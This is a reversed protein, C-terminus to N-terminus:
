ATAAPVTVIVAADFCSLVFTAFHVTVTGTTSFPIDSFLVLRVNFYPVVAVNVGTNVGVFAVIFVTAHDLLLVLITVTLM